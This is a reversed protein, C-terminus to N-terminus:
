RWCPSSNWRACGTSRRAGNPLTASAGHGLLRADADPAAPANVAARGTSEARRRSRHRRGDPAACRRRSSEGHAGQRERADLGLKAEAAHAALAALSLTHPHATRLDATLDVVGILEGTIPDHDPRRARGAISPRSWISPRSSRSPTTSPSPPGSPTRAPPRSAWSAGEQFRMERALEVARSEGRIWLLNAEADAVAVVHPADGDLSALTDFIADVAPALPSRARREELEGEDLLAASGHADPVVGAALSRRWSALVLERVGRVAGVGGDLREHARSLARAHALPDTSVDLAVWPNRM